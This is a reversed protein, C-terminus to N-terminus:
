FGFVAKEMKVDHGYVDKRFNLVGADDVWATFYLISVPVKHILKVFKEKGKKLASQIKKKNWLSDDKLLFEALKLPKQVRICGHSFSREHQDFLKKEPTDHLYISYNNPFLFKIRGLANWPGPKQRLLYPFRKLGPNKWDVSKPDVVRSPNSYSVLEMHHNKLYSPERVMEPAIEDFIIKDPVNWYPNFVIYELSDTFIVTNNSAKGVIVNCEWLTTEDSNVYMKYEPLNIVIFEGKPRMPLWRCREMNVLLQRLRVEPKVNLAEFFEKDAIGSTKLGYRSQFHRVAISLSDSYVDSTDLIGMDGLLHLRHKMVPIISDRSGPKLDNSPQTLSDWTENCALETYLNLYSKLRSYMYYVPESNVMEQPSKNLISDLLGDFDIKKRPIFWDLNRFVSDEVGVYESRAFAFFAATFNLEMEEAIGSEHLEMLPVAKVSDFLIQLRAAISTDMMATRTSGSILNILHASHEIIGDKNIWAFRFNRRKYFEILLGSDSYCEPHRSIFSDIGSSDTFFDTLHLRFSGSTDIETHNNAENRNANESCSIIFSIGIIFFVAVFLRNRISNFM